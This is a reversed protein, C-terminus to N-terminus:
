FPKKSKRIRIPPEKVPIPLSPGIITDIRDACAANMEDVVFGYDNLTTQINAHGLLEQITKINEGKKLLLTSVTHRLNHFPIHKLEADILAKSHIEYLRRTDLKEGITSCFILDESNYGPGALEKERDQRAKHAKLENIALLPLKIYRISAETKPPVYDLKSTRTKINRVRQIQRVIRVIRTEFNVDHWNLAILEGRRLGTSLELVFASYLRHNILQELYAKVEAENLIDLKTKKKKVPPAKIDELPNSSLVGNKVADRFAPKLINHIHKVTQPSLGEEGPVYKVNGAEDKVRVMKGSQLLDRYFNMIDLPIVKQMQMQGINPDVHLRVLDMKRLYFNASIDKVLMYSSLWRQLWDSVIITSPNIYKCFHLEAVIKAQKQVAEEETEAYAIIPKKGDVPVRIMYKPGNKRKYIAAEGKKRKARTGSKNNKAM